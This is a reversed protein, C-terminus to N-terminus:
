MEAIETVRDTESLPEAVGCEPIVIYEYVAPVPLSLQCQDSWLRGVTCSVHIKFHQSQM